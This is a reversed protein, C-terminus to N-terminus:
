GQPLGCRRCFRANASLALDCRPCPRIGSRLQADGPHGHGNMGGARTPAGNWGPAPPRFGQAPPPAWGPMGGAPGGMQWTANPPPPVQPV